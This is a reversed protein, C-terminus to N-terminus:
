IVKSARNIDAGNKTLVEICGAHGNRSATILPTM